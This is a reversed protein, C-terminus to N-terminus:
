IILRLRQLRKKNKNYIEYSEGWFKYLGVMEVSIEDNIYISHSDQTIFNYADGAYGIKNDELDYMTLPDTIFNFVNGKIKAFDENEKGIEITTSLRFNKVDCKYETCKGIDKKCGTLLFVSVVVIALVVCVKFRVLNSRMKMELDEM